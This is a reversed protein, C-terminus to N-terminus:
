CARLISVNLSSPLPSSSIIKKLNSVQFAASYVFSLCFLSLSVHATSHLCLWPALLCGRAVAFYLHAGRYTQVRCHMCRIRSVLRNTKM